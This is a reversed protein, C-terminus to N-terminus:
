QFQETHASLHSDFESPHQLVIRTVYDSFETARALWSEERSLWEQFDTCPCEVYQKLSGQVAGAFQQATAAIKVGGKLKISEPLPVSVVPRGTAIYERLKLPNITLTQENLLYPVMFVHVDSIAAPLEAYSVKARFEANPLKQLRSVDVRVEGVFVFKWGPLLAIVQELLSLDVREDFLGFFGLTPESPMKLLSPLRFHSVDVGHRLVHTELGPLQRAVALSGSSALVLQVQNLLASEFNRIVQTPYGPWLSFDDICYYVAGSIQLKPLVDAAMPVSTVLLPLRFRRRVCERKVAQALLFANIKRALSITPFPFLFPSVISIRDLELFENKQHSKLVARPLTRPMVWSRIKELGRRLDRLTLTPARMGIVEIWIVDNLPLLVNMLHELCNPHRRFDTGIVIIQQESLISKTM